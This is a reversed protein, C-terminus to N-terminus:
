SPQQLLEMRIRAREGGLRDPTTSLKRFLSDTIALALGGEGSFVDSAGAAGYVSATDAPTAAHEPETRNSGHRFQSRRRIMTEARGGDPYLVLGLAISIFAALLCGSSASWGPCITGDGLSLVAVLGAGLTSLLDIQHM